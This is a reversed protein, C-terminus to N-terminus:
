MRSALLGDLSEKLVRVSGKGIKVAELRGEGIWRYITWRSVSLIAAVEDPRLFRKQLVTSKGMVQNTMQNTMSSEAM